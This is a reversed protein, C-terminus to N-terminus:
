LIAVRGLRQNRQLLSHLIYQDQGSLTRVAERWADFEAQNNADARFKRILGSIKREYNTQDYQRDFADSVEAIDPLSWAAESFYLMKREVDSLRINQRQAEIVIRSVLFEKADRSTAFM